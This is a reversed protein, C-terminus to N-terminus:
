AQGPLMLTGAALWQVDLPADGTNHLVSQLTFVDSAPDLTLTLDLRLKPSKTMCTCCWAGLRADDM